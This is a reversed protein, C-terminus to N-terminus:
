RRWHRPVDWLPLAAEARADERSLGIDTLLHDDLAALHARERRTRLAAFLRAFRPAGRHRATKAATETPTFASTM